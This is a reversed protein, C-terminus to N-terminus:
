NFIYVCVSYIHTSFIQCGSYFALITAKCSLTIFSKKKEDRNELQKCRVHIPMINM